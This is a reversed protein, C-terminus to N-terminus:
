RQNSLAKEVKGSLANAVFGILIGTIMGSFLLVPFYFFMKLDSMIFTALILQGLNHFVGGTMSIGIISFKNIKKFIYMALFSLIAGSMSYIMVFFGGFLLGALVVRLINIGFADKTELHYMALIIVLNAIGIKVGPIGVSIPFIVELYSFMLAITSFIAILTVRSASSRSKIKNGDRKSDLNM